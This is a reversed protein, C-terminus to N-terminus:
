EKKNATRICRSSLRIIDAELLIEAAFGALAETVPDETEFHGAEILNIGLENAEILTHYGLEGTVFTDAGAQIASQVEDKGSGGLVAVRRVPKGAGSYRVTDACLVTRVYEAFADLDTEEPLDGIRGMPLGEVPFPRVTSASLGIRAALCDNVGGSLADLRTHFCMVSCGARILRVCLDGKAQSADVTKLGSFLFPHHCIMADVHRDVAERVMRDTPDLCVLIRKVERDPDPCVMLGDNDWECSLSGPIRADLAEYLEKVRM